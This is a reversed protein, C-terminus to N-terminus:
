RALVARWGPLFEQDEASSPAPSKGRPAGLARTQGQQVVAVIRSDYKALRKDLEDDSLKHTHTHTNDVKIKESYQEPKKAKLIAVLLRDNGRKAINIARDELTQGALETAKLMAEAFEPNRAIERHYESATVGVTARAEEIDATDVFVDALRERKTPTWNFGRGVAEKPKEEVPPPLIGAKIDKKTQRHARTKLKVCEICFGNSVYRESDHGAKPCPGPFYRKAGSAKAESLSVLPRTSM